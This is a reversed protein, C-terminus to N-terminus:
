LPNQVELLRLHQRVTQLAFDQYRAELDPYLAAVIQQDGQNKRRLEDIQQHRQLRHRLTRDLIETGGSIVGHSPLIYDPKLDIVRQLSQLYLDLDGGEEPILISGRSQALDAIFFWRLSDPALGLMGEDHGPLEYARVPQGQWECVATGETIIELEVGELYGAGFHRALWYRTCASMLVPIQQTRALEMAYHHHDPHHHSILIADVPYRQLTTLLQQYVGDDKASPDVLIQRKGPDGLLPANTHTAPHLTNSLIPLYRLGQLLELCPIEDAPIEINFPSAKCVEIDEALQKLANQMPVVM